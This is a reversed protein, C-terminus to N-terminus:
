GRPRTDESGAMADLTRALARLAREEHLHGHSWAEQSEERAIEAAVIFGGARSAPEPGTRARAEFRVAARDLAVGELPLKSHRSFAAWDRALEAAALLAPLPPPFPM